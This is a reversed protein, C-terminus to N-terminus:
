RDVDKPSGDEKANEPTTIIIPGMLGAYPDAAENVHSHCCVPHPADAAPLLVCLLATNTCVTFVVPRCVLLEASQKFGCTARLLVRRQTNSRGDWVGCVCACRHYMWMVSGLDAAGPGAREPVLWTYQM